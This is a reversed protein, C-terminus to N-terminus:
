ATTTLRESAAMSNSGSRASSRDHSAHYVGNRMALGLAALDGLVRGLGRSTLMPSNEVFSTDRDLRAFLGHWSLGCAVESATSAQAKEQQASTRVPFAALFSTLLAAGRDVTLLRVDSWIPFPRSFEMTKDNRWFKHPTPM